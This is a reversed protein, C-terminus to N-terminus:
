RLGAEEGSFATKGWTSLILLPTPRRGPIPVRQIRKRDLFARLAPGSTRSCLQRTAQGNQETHLAPAAGQGLAVPGSKVRIAARASRRARQRVRQAAIEGRSRINHISPAPGSGVLLSAM